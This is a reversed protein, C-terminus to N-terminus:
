VGNDGGTGHTVRGRLAIGGSSFFELLGADGGM